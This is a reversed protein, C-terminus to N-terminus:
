AEVEELLLLRKTRPGLKVDDSMAVGMVWLIRRRDEVLWLARRRARPIKRDVLLDQLKKTGKM